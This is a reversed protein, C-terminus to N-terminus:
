IETLVVDWLMSQVNALSTNWVNIVITLENAGITDVNFKVAKSGRSLVPSEYIKEGDAYIELSRKQNNEFDDPVAYNGSISKYKGKLLYKVNDGSARLNVAPQIIEQAIKFATLKNDWDYPNEWATLKDLGIVKGAAKQEGIIVSQTSRDWSVPKGLAASIGRVPLYTTGDVAFPEITKGNADKPTIQVGDSIIKIDNYVADLKKIFPYKAAYAVGSTLLLTASAGIIVGKFTDKTLKM